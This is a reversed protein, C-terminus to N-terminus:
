MRVAAVTSATPELMSQIGYEYGVTSPVRRIGNVEAAKVRNWNDARVAELIREREGRHHEPL